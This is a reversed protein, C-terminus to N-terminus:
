TIQRSKGNLGGKRWSRYTVMTASVSVQSECGNLTCNSVQENPFFRPSGWRETKLNAILKAQLKLVRVRSEDFKGLASAALVVAVAWKIFRVLDM